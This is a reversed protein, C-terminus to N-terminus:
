AKANLAEGLSAALAEDAERVVHAYVRLPAANAHGLRVISLLM